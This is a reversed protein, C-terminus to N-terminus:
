STRNQRPLSKTTKSPKGNWQGPLGEIPNVVRMGGLSHTRKNRHKGHAATISDKILLAIFYLSLQKWNAIPGSTKILLYEKL